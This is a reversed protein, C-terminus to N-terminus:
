STNCRVAEVSASLNTDVLDYTLNSYNSARAMSSEPRRVQAPRQVM